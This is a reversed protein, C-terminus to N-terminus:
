TFILFIDLFHAHTRQGSSSIAAVRFYYPIGEELNDVLVAASGVSSVNTYVLSGTPLDLVSNQSNFPPLQGPVVKAVVGTAATGNLDAGDFELFDLNGLQDLFTINWTFGNNVDFVSRSVNVAGVTPLNQLAVQVQRADANYPLYSSRAGRFSLAFNGSIPSSTGAIVETVSVTVKGKGSIVSAQSSSPKMADIAVLMLPLNGANSEFLVRWHCQGYPGPGGVPVVVVTGINPLAELAAQIASKEGNTLTAIDVADTSAISSSGWSGTSRMVENKSRVQLAQIDGISSSFTVIWQCAQYGYQSPNRATSSVDVAAFMSLKELETEISDGVTKCDGDGNANAYIWGTTEAGYRLQFQLYMSVQDVGGSTISGISRSSISQVEVAASSCTWTSPKLAIPETVQGGFSLTFYNGQAKTSSSNFWNTATVVIDQVEQATGKRAIAVTGAAGTGTLGSSIFGFPPLDGSFTVNYSNLYSSLSQASGLKIFNTTASQGGLFSVTWSYGKQGDPGSRSVAVAGAPIVTGSNISELASQVQAATANFQIPKTTMSNFSLQFAGGIENGDLSSVTMNAPAGARSSSTTLRSYDPILAPINGSNMPSIFSVTWIYGLQYNPGTRSVEVAGISPLSQLASRMDYASIDHPLDVTNDGNFSLKFFGGIENGDVETLVSATALGSSCTLHPHIVLQPVNGMTLPFTIAYVNNNSSEALVRSVVVSGVMNWMSGVITQLDSGPSGSDCNVDTQGACADFAIYGSYQLSGGPKSSTDLELFFNGGTADSISIIQVENIPTADQQVYQVENM